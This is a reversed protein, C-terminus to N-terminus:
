HIQIIDNLEWYLLYHNKFEHRFNEIYQTKQAESILPVDPSKDNVIIIVVPMDSDYIKEYLLPPMKEKNNLAPKVTKIPDDIACFYIFCLPQQYLEFENFRNLENITNAYENFWPFSYNNLKNLINDPIKYNQKRDKLNYAPLEPSLKPDSLVTDIITPFSSPTAHFFDDCDYFDLRFNQISKTFLGLKFDVKPFIGFPRLFEAPKLNNKGIIERAKDTSFVIGTPYYNEKIYKSCSDNHM